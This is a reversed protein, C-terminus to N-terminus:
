YFVVQRLRKGYACYHNVVNDKFARVGGFTSIWGPKAGFLYKLASPVGHFIGVDEGALLSREAEKAKNLADEYGFYFWLM